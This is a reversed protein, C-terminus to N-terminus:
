DFRHLWKSSAEMNDISEDNSVNLFEEEYDEFRLPTTLKSVKRYSEPVAGKWTDGLQPYAEALIIIGGNYPIIKHESTLKSKIIEIGGLEIILPEGLITIWDIGKIKNHHKGAILSFTIDDKQDIGPFRQLIQWTYKTDQSIDNYVFCFGASGHIPKLKECWKIAINLMTLFNDNKNKDCIPIHGCISSLDESDISEGIFHAYWPCANTWDGENTDDYFVTMDVGSTDKIKSISNRWNNIPNSLIKLYRDSNSLAYYNLKDKYNNYYDEICDLLRNYLQNGRIDESPSIFLEIGLSFHAVTIDNPGKIKINNLMDINNVDLFDIGDM